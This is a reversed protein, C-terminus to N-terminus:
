EESKGGAAAKTKSPKTDVLPAPVTPDDQAGVPSPQEAFPHDGGAPPGAQWGRPEWFAAFSEAPFLAPHEIDAHWAWVRADTAPETDTHEWGLPVWRDREDAGTVLAHNGEADALWYTQKETV